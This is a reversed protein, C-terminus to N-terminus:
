NRTAVTSCHSLPASPSPTTTIHANMPAGSTSISRSPEPLSSSAATLAIAPSRRTHATTDISIPPMFPMSGIMTAACSPTGTSSASEIPRANGSSPWASDNMRAVLASSVGVTIALWAL